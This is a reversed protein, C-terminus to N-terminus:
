YGWEDLIFVSDPFSVSDAYLGRSECVAVRGFHLVDGYLNMRPDPIIRCRPDIAPVFRGSIEPGPGEIVRPPPAERPPGVSYDAALVPCVCCGLWASAILVCTRGVRAAFHRM